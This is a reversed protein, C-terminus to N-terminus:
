ARRTIRHYLAAAETRNSAGLKRLIGKVHVKVTNEALFLEVAIQANTKGLAVNRLVDWERPSLREGTRDADSVRSVTALRLPTARAGRPSDVGSFGQGSASNIIQLREALQCREIAIGLGVAYAGLLWRDTEDASRHPFRDAHVMAVPYGWAQVPAAVYGTTRAFRILSRHVRPNSQPNQVLIPQGSLLMEAEVLWGTLRRSHAMGFDVLREAFDPDDASHATQALWIGQDVRSFLVRSFGILSAAAPARSVLEDMTAAGVLDGIARQVGLVAEAVCDDRRDRAGPSRRPPPGGVVAAFQGLTAQGTAKAAADLHRSVSHNVSADAREVHVPSSPLMVASGRSLGYNIVRYLHLSLKINWIIALKPRCM